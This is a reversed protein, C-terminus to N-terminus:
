QQRMLAYAPERGLHPRLSIAADIEWRVFASPFDAPAKPKEGIIPLNSSLM